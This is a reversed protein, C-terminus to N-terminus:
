NVGPTWADTSTPDIAARLNRESVTRAIFQTRGDAWAVNFGDAFLGGLKPLPAAPDCAIDAPKTWPVAEGAEAVLFTRDIREPLWRQMPLATGTPFPTKEGTFVQYYTCHAEASTTKVPAYVSPMKELLALNHSSDWPEDRKFEKYLAEQDLFPLIEVRWSYLAKGRKMVVAPPYQNHKEKYRNMAGAIVSLNSQSAEVLRKERRQDIMSLWLFLSLNGVLGAAIGAYAFGKGRRARGAGIDRLALRGLILAPIAAALPLVFTLLGFVLSGVAKFSTDSEAKASKQQTEIVHGCRGCVQIRSAQSEKVQL